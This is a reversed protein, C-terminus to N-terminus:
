YPKVIFDTLGTGLNNILRAPNGILNSAGLVRFANYKFQEKHFSVLMNMVEAGEGFLNNINIGNVRFLMDEFTSFYLIKRAIVEGLAGLL